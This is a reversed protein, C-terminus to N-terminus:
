SQRGCLPDSISAKFRVLINGAKIDRHIKKMSHLYELARLVQVAIQAIQAESLCVDENERADIIDQVSGGDAYEM